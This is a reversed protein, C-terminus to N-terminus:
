YFHFYTKYESIYNIQYDNKYWKGASKQQIQITQNNTIKVEHNEM